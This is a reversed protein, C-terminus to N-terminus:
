LPILSYLRMNTAWENMFTICPWFERSRDQNRWCEIQTEDTVVGKNKLSHLAILLRWPEPRYHGSCGNIIKCKGDVILWEGAATVKKGARFSSHHFRGMKGVHSYFEHTDHDGVMVWISKFKYAPDAGVHGAFSGIAYQRSAKEFVTQSDFTSGRRTIMPGLEVQYKEKALAAECYKVGSAILKLYGYRQGGKPVKAAGGFFKEFATKVKFDKLIADADKTGAGLVAEQFQDAEATSEPWGHFARRMGEEFGQFVHKGGLLGKEGKDHDGLKKAGDVIFRAVAEELEEAGPEAVFLEELEDEVESDYDTVSVSGNDTDVVVPVYGGGWSTSYHSTDGFGNGM